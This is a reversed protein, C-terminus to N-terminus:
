INLQSRSASRSERVKLMYLMDMVVDSYRGGANLEKKPGLYRKFTEQGAWHFFSGFVLPFFVHWLMSMFKQLPSDPLPNNYVCGGGYCEEDEDGEGSGGGRFRAGEPTPSPTWRHDM